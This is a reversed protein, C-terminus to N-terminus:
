SQQPTPTTTNITMTQLQILTMNKLETLTVQKQSTKEYYVFGIAKAFGMPISMKRAYKPVRQAYFSEVRAPDDTTQFTASLMNTSGPGLSQVIDQGVFPKANPYVPLGIQKILTPTVAVRQTKMTCSCTALAIMLAFIIARMDGNSELFL